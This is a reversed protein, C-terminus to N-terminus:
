ILYTFLLRLLKANFFKEKKVYIDYAMDCKKCYINNNRIVNATM